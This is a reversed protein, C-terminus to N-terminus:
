KQTILLNFFFSYFFIEVGNHKSLDLDIKMRTDYTVPSLLLVHIKRIMKGCTGQNGQIYVFINVIFKNAFLKCSIFDHCMNNIEM